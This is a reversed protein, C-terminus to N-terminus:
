QSCLRGVKFAANRAVLASHKSSILGGVSHSSPLWRRTEEAYFEAPAHLPGRLPVRYLFGNPRKYVDYVNQKRM